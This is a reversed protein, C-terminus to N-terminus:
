FDLGDIQCKKLRGWSRVREMAIPLQQPLVFQCNVAAMWWGDLQKMRFEWIFSGWQINDGESLGHEQGQSLCPHNPVPVLYYLIKFFRWKSTATASDFAVM